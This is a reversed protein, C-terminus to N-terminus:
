RSAAAADVLEWVRDVHRQETYRGGVAVRVVLRGDVRTPTLFVDGPAHVADLLAQTAADGGTHRFCVLSLPASGVLELAPHADIREALARAAGVHLRVHARLGEVGYQRITFWLKLARFRRGLQVHWDRYDIVEGSASAADHLYAPVISLAGVLPARDAVFMASCDLNVMMWKHPNVVYSDALEVGDHMWRHEPCLAATGYMAADVHFWAGHARAVEGVARVPDVAGSGTTGVTACVFAPVIGARVDDAIAEELADPLMAQDPGVDILRVNGIGAVRAGKEFSSHAERSGYAAVERDGARARAAVLAALIASSATDQIVGGGRGSSAFRDPLGLMGALWDLVHTELETCAPSTSWLMGQVALGASLLEGLIAPECSAGPFYAFFGPHQWHVLAPTIIEDVDRLWAEWPEGHEPPTAPLRSRVEGPAVATRVPRQELTARYDAVWDVLAHGAARFEDPTMHPVNVPLVTRPGNRREPGKSAVIERRDAGHAAGRGHAAPVRTAAGVCEV